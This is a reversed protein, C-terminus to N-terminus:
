RTNNDNKMAPNQIAIAVIKASRRPLLIPPNIELRGEFIRMENINIEIILPIGNVTLEIGPIGRPIAMSVRKRKTNIIQKGKPTTIEVIKDNDVQNM